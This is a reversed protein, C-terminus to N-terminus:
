EAFVADVDLWAPPESEVYAGDGLRLVTISRDRADVLWYSPIGFEAYAARKETRDLLATSPSAIEVVLSPVGAIRKGRVLSRDVVQLDPCKVMDDRMHIDTQALLRDSPALHQLLQQMLNTQVLQHAPIPAPNVILVGNSLEYRCGDDPTAELDDVTFPSTSAGLPLPISRTTVRGM